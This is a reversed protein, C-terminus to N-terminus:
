HAIATLDGSVTVTVGDADLDFGTLHWDGPPMPLRRLDFLPNLQAIAPALLAPPLATGALSLQPNSVAIQTSNVIVPAVSLTFPVGYGNPMIAQGNLTVRGPALALLVDALRLNASGGFPLPTTIHNLPGTTVLRDIQAQLAPRALRVEAETPAPKLLVAQHAGYLKGTDLHIDDVTLDIAEIPMGNATYGTISATLEPVVGFPLQLLPDGQVDATAHAGPGVSQQLSNTLAHDITGPVGAGASFILVLILSAIWGFM